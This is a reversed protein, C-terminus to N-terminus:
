PTEARTELVRQAVAVAEAPSRVVVPPVGQWNRWWDCQMPNLDNTSSKVEMLLMAQGSSVLLDPVGHGLVALSLVAFGARRLAAVVEGHNADVKADRRM